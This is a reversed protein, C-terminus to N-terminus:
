QSTHTSGLAELLWAGLEHTRGIAGGGPTMGPVFGRTLFPRLLSADSAVVHVPVDWRAGPGTVTAPPQHDGLLLLLWARDGLQRLYGGLYDFSYVLADGYAPRLDNLDPLLAMAARLQEEAFPETGMLVQWNEQYPPTPRFPMHTNITPFFSFVPARAASAIEDRYLRALAYQDPVRWWGFAPGSYAIDREGYIRDFGYFSGEPWDGRLGPMLAVSRYGASGFRNVLTEREQTLLLDYAGSDSVDIGTLFSSHALWSVGGFTPSTVFASAVGGGVDTVADAFRVQQPALATTVEAV